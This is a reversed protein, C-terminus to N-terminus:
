TPLGPVSAFRHLWYTGPPSVALIGNRWQERARTYEGAFARNRLLAEIRAWTCRTAIRPRLSRRPAISKPGDRWSQATYVLKDIVAERDVLTVVCTQESSWLNEWRGAPRELSRVEYNFQHLFSLGILGEIHWGEPLDQANVLFDRV